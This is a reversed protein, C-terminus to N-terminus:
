KYLLAASPVSLQTLDEGQLREFRSFVIRFALEIRFNSCKPGKLLQLDDMVGDNAIKAAVSSMKPGM